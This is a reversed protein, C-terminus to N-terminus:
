RSRYDLVKTGQEMSLVYYVAYHGCLQREDNGFLVSLWGGQQYYLFEVVEPLYNVKVTITLQDKPRGPKTWCSARFRRTCRRM